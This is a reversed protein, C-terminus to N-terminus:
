PSQTPCVSGVLVQVRTCPGSAGCHGRRWPSRSLTETCCTAPRYAWRITPRTCCRVPSLEGTSAILAHLADIGGPADPDIRVLLRAQIGYVERASMGRAAADILERVDLDHKEAVLQPWITLEAYVVNDRSLDELAERILQTYKEPKDLTANVIGRLQESPQKMAWTRLSDADACEEPLTVSADEAFELFTSPRIGGEVHDTLVVKPLASLVEVSVDKYEPSIIPQEYM